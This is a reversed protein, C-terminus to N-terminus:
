DEKNVEVKMDYVCVLALGYLLSFMRVDSKIHNDGTADDKQLNCLKTRRYLQFFFM